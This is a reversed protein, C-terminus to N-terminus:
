FPLWRDNRVDHWLRGREPDDLVWIGNTEDFFPESPVNPDMRPASGGKPKGSVLFFWAVALLSVGGFAIAAIVPTSLSFPQPPGTRAFFRGTADSPDIDWIFNGGSQNTANHEGEVADGPLTVDIIYKADKILREFSPDDTDFADVRSEEMTIDFIWEDGVKMLVSDAGFAEALEESHDLSPELPWTMKIGCLDGSKWPQVDRDNPFDAENELGDIVSDCAEDEDFGIGLFIQEGTLQEYALEPEIAVILEVSGSGDDDIEIVNEVRFCGSLLLICAIVLTGPLVRGASVRLFAM